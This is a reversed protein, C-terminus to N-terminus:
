DEMLRAVYRAIVDIELNVQDGAKLFALNTHTKTHPIIMVFFGTDSLQNVTLSIGNLCVSGKEAILKMLKKPASFEWCEANDKPTISRCQAVADVHGSVLHGGLADGAKLAAELNIRDSIQWDCLTTCRLTEPSIDATFCGGEHASVTLCVGNCAISAGLNLPFHADHTDIRMVCGAESRTLDLITGIHSILGTFM